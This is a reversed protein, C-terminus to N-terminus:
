QAVVKVDVELRREVYAERPFLALRMPDGPDVRGGEEDVEVEVEVAVEVELEEPNPVGTSERVNAKL